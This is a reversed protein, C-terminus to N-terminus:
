LVNAEGGLQRFMDFFTPYSKEVAEAGDIIIEQHLVAAAISMAMVIRHDGYSSVEVPGNIEQRTGGHVVLGDEREEVQVGLRRLCDTMASLRDCEKLRLRKGNFFTTKGPAKAAVVALIPLLDPVQSVDLTVGQLTTRWFAIGDPNVGYYGGMNELIQLIHRDGQSSATELGSCGVIGDGAAGAALWFAANSWDGEVTVEGPTHYSQRGPINWGMIEKKGEDMLVELTIGFKELTRMTMEVYSKSELPTTLIIESDEEALPLAFLLGTIYQSSINGPLSFSGGTLKGAMSLPLKEGEVKCGHSKLLEVLTDIPREPLRGSGVVQAGGGLVAAVPLLFRLTSGSEKCDLLPITKVKKKDVPLTTMTDEKYSIQAGLAMLCNQTALIDASTGRLHLKTEGDALSAAILLRHADSKSSIGEAMGNLTATGIKIKM